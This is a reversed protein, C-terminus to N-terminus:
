EGSSEQEVPVPSAGYRRTFVYTFEAGFLMIQASYYMWLLILVLAGAAGYTSAVASNALYVGLLLRGVTFLFATVFAGVWVDRWRIHVHPLVKFIFMFLVTTIGFTVGENIGRLVLASEPLLDLVYRDVFSLATSLVLSVLLLFGIVLVMGFSLVKDKLFGIIGGTKPEDHVKWIRNLTTQLNNFLALAGLLLGGLGLVTSIIGQNPKAFNEILSIVLEAADAGVSTEIQEIIQAQVDSQNAILGLIAVVIVILPAMSFVTYYALAAAMMPASDRNWEAFAEKLLEFFAKISTM